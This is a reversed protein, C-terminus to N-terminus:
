KMTQIVHRLIKLREMGIWHLLEFSRANSFSMKFQKWEERSTKWAWGMLRRRRWIRVEEGVVELILDVGVQLWNHPCPHEPEAAREFQSWRRQLRPLLSTLLQCYLRGFPRRNKVLHRTQPRLLEQLGTRFSAKLPAWDIARHALGAMRNHPSNSSTKSRKGM